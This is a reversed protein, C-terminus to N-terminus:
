NYIRIQARYLVPLAGAVTWRVRLYRFTVTGSPLAAWSTYSVGDTSSQYETTVTGSAVHGARIRRAASSGLDLTSHQYVLSGASGGDWDTWADWTTPITDWTLSGFDILYYDQLACNTKTGPWGLAGADVTLTPAGFGQADLLITLRRDNASENGSTDRAKISIVWEGDAPTQAIMSRDVRGAEWLPTMSEWPLDLAADCYRATFGDLDLEAVADWYYARGGGPQEIVTFATVDAPAASKSAVLHLVHASWDGRVGLGNVARVKFLHFVGSAPLTTVHGDIRDARQQSFVGTRADAWAVEIYGGVTVSADTVAPWTITTVAGITGDPRVTVDSSVTPTGVTPVSRPDPLLTNPAPDVAQFSTGFDFISADIEKFTISVGGGLVFSRDLVEFLKGSWGMDSLTIAVVDFLQLPWARLKLQLTVVLAQREYRLMVAAVQQAQGSRYVAQLEIDGVLEAGDEAVATSNVVRAFQVPQWDADADNITGQLVNRLEARPRRARTSMSRTLLWDQTITAVPTGIAGARVRILGQTYGWRGAMAECLEDLVEAPAQGPKAVYGALYLPVTGSGYDVSTDCVNAAAIFSAEDIQDTTRRGGLPHLAYWRALMAPNASWGTSSTRTDVVTDAGSIDASFNPVGSPFVDQSYTLDIRAYACGRLRHATTWLAPFDAILDARAAQSDSGMAWRIRACRTGTAYQYSVTAAGSVPAGTVSVVAGVVTPTVQVSGDAGADVVVSVSGDVPTHPLTVSGSGGSVTMSAVASETKDSVFPASTVWGDADLTLAHEDFYNTNVASISHGAMVVLFTFTESDAGTTGIPYFYGGKRVRGMVLDREELTGRVTLTRDRLSSNYAARARAEARRRQHAAYGFAGLVLLGQSITAVTSAALGLGLEAGAWAVAAGVVQPM